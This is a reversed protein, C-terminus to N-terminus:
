YGILINYSSILPSVSPTVNDARNLEARFGIKTRVDTMFKFSIEFKEGGFLLTRGTGPSWDTAQPRFNTILEKFGGVIVDEIAFRKHNSKLTNFKLEFWSVNEMKEGFAHLRTVLNELHKQNATFFRDDASKPQATTTIEFRGPPFHHESRSSLDILRGGQITRLFHGAEIQAPTFPTIKITVGDPNNILVFCTYETLKPQPVDYQYDIFVEGTDPINSEKSRIVKGNLYDVTFDAPSNYFLTPNNGIQNKVRVSGRVLTSDVRQDCTWVVTGDGVTNGITTPWTTPEDSGSTGATTCKYIYGNRITPEILAGLVYNTSAAWDPKRLKLLNVKEDGTDGVPFTKSEDHEHQRVVDFSTKVQWNDRGRWLVVSDKVVDHKFNYINFFNIDNYSEDAIYPLDGWDGMTILPYNNSSLVTKFDLSHPIDEGIRHRPSIQHWNQINDTDGVPLGVYYSITTGTPVEEDVDLGVKSITLANDGLDSVTFITSFLSGKQAFGTNYLSINKIGFEYLYHTEEADGLVDDEEEKIFEFKLWQVGMEPFIWVTKRDDRIYRTPQHIPLDVYNINDVSYLPTVATLKPSHGVMEIKSIRTEVDIEPNIEITFWGVLKGSESTVIQQKWANTLDSFAYGFKSGVALQNSVIKADYEEKIIFPYNELEFLHSLNTKVNGQRSERLTVVGADINVDTTTTALDVNQTDNFTDGVTYSYGAPNEVTFLLNKVEDHTTNLLYNLRNRETENFDFNRLERDIQHIIEEYAINLDFHFESITKNYNDVDWIQRYKQQRLQITPKGFVVAKLLDSLYLIVEKVSPIVGKKLEQQFFKNLFKKIQRESIM